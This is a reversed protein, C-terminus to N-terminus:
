MKIVERSENSTLGCDRYPPNNVIKLTTPDKLTGTSISAPDVKKVTIGLFQGM